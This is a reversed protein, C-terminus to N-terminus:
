TKFSRAETLTRSTPTCARSHHGQLLWRQCGDRSPQHDGYLWEGGFTVSNFDKIDFLLPDTARLNAILTDCDDDGTFCDDPRGDQGTVWLYGLNFGISHRADARTVQVIQADASSPYAALMAVLLVLASSVRAVKLWHRKMM